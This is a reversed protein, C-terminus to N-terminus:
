LVLWNNLSGMLLCNDRIALGCNQYVQGAVSPATATVQGTATTPDLFYWTGPTLGAIGTNVGPGVIFEGFSGATFGGPTNCFGGAAFAFNSAKAPRAQVRTPSLNYFNVMAGYGINSACQAYFKNINNGHISDIPHISSWDEPLPSLGGTLSDLHTALTRLANLVYTLEENSIKDKISSTDPIILPASYRFPGSM